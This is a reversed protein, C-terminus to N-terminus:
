ETGILGIGGESNSEIASLCGPYIIDFIPIETLPILENIQTSITNCALLIVKVGQSEMFSIVKKTLFVIEDPEKNGYPMNKSDGFYRISEKPLQKQLEKIV